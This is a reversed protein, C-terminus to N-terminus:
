PKYLDIELPGKGDIERVIKTNEPSFGGNLKDDRPTPDNVQVAVKYKGPPVDTIEFKGDPEARGVRTTYQEGKAVDPVLTILVVGTKSVEIPKGNRVVRGTVKVPAPGGCGAVAFLALLLAWACFSRTM